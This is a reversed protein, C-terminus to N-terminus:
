EAQDQNHEAADQNHQAAHHHHFGLRDRILPFVSKVIKSFDNYQLPEIQSIQCFTTYEAYIEAKEVFICCETLYTM